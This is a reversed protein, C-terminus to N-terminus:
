KTLTQIQANSLRSPYYTLQRITGGFYIAGTKGIDLRSVTPLTGSTDTQVTGGDVSGAFNNVAYTYSIRRSAATSWTAGFGFTSQVNSSVLTQTVPQLDSQRFIRHLNGVEGDISLAGGSVAASGMNSSVDVFMTGEDQRYWSSFNSGTMSANDATRTVTSATTPIYSTPFTGAELQAGWLYIGSTGDGSITQADNGSVVAVAYNTSTSGTSRTL